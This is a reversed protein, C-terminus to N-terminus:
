ETAEPGYIDLDLVLGRNGIEALTKPSLSLGENGEKLFLGCFIDAQFRTTLTRWVELDDTLPALLAAVQEDLDGPTKDAVNLRWSGFPALKEVGRSTFWVGGKRVGVTPKAGLALTIEQPDLDDGFFRLSAVTRSLEAM